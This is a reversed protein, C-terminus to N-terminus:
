NRIHSRNAQYIITYRLGAGYTRRALLWLNNGPEVVYREGVPIESAPPAAFPEAAAEAVTGNPALIEARLRFGSAGPRLPALLSWKGQPDATATGLLRGGAYLKVAAGPAAHGNVALHGHGDDEATDIALAGAPPPGGPQQLVQAPKEPNSPVLVAVPTGGAPPSAVVVAVSGASSQKAGTAPNTAELTLKRDGPPLPKDPVLVWEGRGDATAQGIRQKGDLVQVQAGPAARGAIVAHGTPDVKVIDFSPPPVAPKPSAAAVPAPKAAPHNETTATPPHPSPRPWLWVVAVGIAM